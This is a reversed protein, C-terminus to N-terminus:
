NNFEDFDGLTVDITKEKDNSIITLEVKDEPDFDALVRALPNMRTVAVDNVKVIIDGAVIGSKQAPSDPIVAAVEGPMIWAGESTSLSNQTVLQPNLMVYRVGLWPRVIRGHKKVSDIARKAVNIPTAFGISQGQRAVATNVAIVEGSLNILPGGSNGSNIATDTQIAEEIVESSGFGNSAVVRRDIGSIIGRTVTNDFEALANGIAIVTQGIVIADSDGLGATPLNKADIQLLAIDHIPDRALVEAVFEREDSLMVRYEVSEDEVVHRNTLILGDSGIIFGTGGGVQIPGDTETPSPSFFEEFPLLGTRNFAEHQERFIGVSVVAPSVSQVVAITAAEEDLLGEIGEKVRKTDVGSSEPLQVTTGSFGGSQLIFYSSLAGVMAAIIVSFYINTSKGEKM